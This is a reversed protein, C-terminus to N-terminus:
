KSKEKIKLTKTQNGTEVGLAKCIKHHIDAPSLEDDIVVKFCFTDFKFKLTVKLKAKM